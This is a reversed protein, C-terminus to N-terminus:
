RKGSRNYAEIAEKLEEFEEYPILCIQAALHDEAKAVQERHGASHRPSFTLARENGAIAALENGAIAAFPSRLVAGGVFAAAINVGTM